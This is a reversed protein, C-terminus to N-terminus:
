VLKNVAELMVELTIHTYLATVDASKHGVITKIIRSDVGAETLRTIFTHRCDHIHYGPLIDKFEKNFVDYNPIPKVPLITKIKDCLPVIRVGAPTKAETIEIYDEHCHEDTLEYLESWRCGTYIYLLIQKVIEQDTRTWLKAVIDKPIVQKKRKIGEPKESTDIVKHINLASLPLIGQKVAYKILNNVLIQQRRVSNQTGKLNDYFQQLTVRDLQTMRLDYLPALRKYSTEYSSLTGEAKDQQLLIWEDYVQKVTKTSIEYPDANYKALAREAERYTKHYSLYKYTPVGNEKWGTIKKIAYPRRRNGALKVITGSGNARRM